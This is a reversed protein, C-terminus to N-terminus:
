GARRPRGLPVIYLPEHDEPLGMQERVREEHFAGVPVGGLELTVAQLLLNQAAHGIELQMYRPSLEPGYKSEMRRAVAVFVFVVPAERVFSQSLSARCLAPRLDRGEHLVLRHRRADYRHCGDARVVFLELPYLAGASPATRLGETGSLGQAAWLLQSLAEDSVSEDTFERISRRTSLTRELSVAGDHRPPPLLVEEPRAPISEKTM